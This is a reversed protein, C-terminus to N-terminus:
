FIIWNSMRLRLRVFFGVGVGLTTLHGVGVEGLDEPEKRDRTRLGAVSLTYLKSLCLINVTNARYLYQPDHFCVSKHNDVLSTVVYATIINLDATV